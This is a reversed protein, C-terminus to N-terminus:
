SHLARKPALGRKAINIRQFEFVLYVEYRFQKRRGADFLSKMKLYKKSGIKASM